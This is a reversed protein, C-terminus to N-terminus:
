REAQITKSIEALNGNEDRSQVTLTYNQGTKASVCIKNSYVSSLDTYEVWDTYDSGLPKFRLETRQSPGTGEIADLNDRTFVASYDYCIEDGVQELAQAYIELYPPTQDKSINLNLEYVNDTETTEAIENEPDIILQLTIDGTESFLEEPSFSFYDEQGKSLPKINEELLKEEGDAFIMKLQVVSSPAQTVESNKIESRVWIKDGQSFTRNDTDGGLDQYEYYISKDGATSVHGEPLVQEHKVIWKREMLVPEFNFYLNPRPKPTVTATPSPPTTATPILQIQTPSLSPLLTPSLSSEPTSPSPTLEQSQLMDALKSHNDSVDSVPKDILVENYGDDIIEQKIAGQQFSAKLVFVIVLLFIFVSILLSWKYPSSLSKWFVSISKPKNNKKVQDGREVPNVVKSQDISNPSDISDSLKGFNHATNM